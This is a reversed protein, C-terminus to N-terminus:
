FPIFENDTIDECLSEHNQLAKWQPCFERCQCYNKCNVFDSVRHYLRYSPNAELYERADSESDFCKSARKAGEKIM